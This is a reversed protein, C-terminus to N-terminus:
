RFHVDPRITGQFKPDSLLSRVQDFTFKLIDISELLCGNVNIDFFESARKLLTPLNYKVALDKVSLCNAVDIYRELYEVCHRKLKVM